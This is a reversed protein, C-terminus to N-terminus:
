REELARRQAEALSAQPSQNGRLTRELADDILRRWADFQPIRPRPVALELQTLAAARNPDAAYFDELLPIASRRVPIYYSAEVWRALNAPEVLFRWFDFAALRQAESSGRMVVLQAGGLPVRGGDEMPVPAAALEFGVSFRRVDPWNAISAFTMLNRTRVFSLIAPTSEAAGYFALHRSRALEHLMTLAEIAEPGDLNPTGDDLALVGGRSLVMMEFLWSDGVFMAGQAARTTLEAAAAAFADWTAPPAVGAQRLADANYYMVPTSANWPLGYRAGDFEGYGWLGPYFDAVVDEPLTAALDALDQVAGDGVLRPFFGIEAQFLTPENGTGFAAVLRTQAEPYSGVYRVDVRVEDQAAHYADVLEVVADEVGEMSHWFTITTQAHATSLLLAAAIAALSRNM